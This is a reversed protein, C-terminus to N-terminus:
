LQNEESQVRRKWPKLFFTGLFLQLFHICFLPLSISFLNEANESFLVSAIPLGTALSKQSLCFFHSVQIEKSKSWRIAFIWGSLHVLLVFSLCYPVVEVLATWFLNKETMSLGNCTALYVLFAICVMPIHGCGEKTASDKLKKSIRVLVWGAFCPIIVVALIKLFLFSWTSGAQFAGLWLFPVLFVGILNSLTAHGLAYDANGGANSSFVVCSSITTPLIAIFYLSGYLVQPILGMAWGLKVWLVPLFIIGAQLVVSGVPRRVLLTLNEHKLRAGQLLFILAVVCESLYEFHLAGGKAGIAPKWYAILIMIVLICVFGPGSTLVRTM